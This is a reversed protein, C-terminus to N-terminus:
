LRLAKLKYVYALVEAVAKYLSGPILEGIEVTKFLTQALPKNEVLPVKHEEAVARIRLAIYDQGKAVVKPATMSDKKYSLAVAFHTPNTIVVDAKPVVAMILKMAIERQKRKIRGKIEPSGEANKMEDKVEERTMRLNQEFQRRNWFYDALAVILLYTASKLSLQFILHGMNQAIQVPTKLMLRPLESKIGEYISYTLFTVIGVSFVSKLFEIGSTKPLLRQIGSLPNLNEFHFKMKYGSLVLGGQAANTAVSLALGTAMFILVIRGFRFGTQLFWYHVGEVTYDQREAHSLLYQMFGSLESLMAPGFMGLLIVIALFTTTFPLNQSRAIQGKEKAENRRKPTAKETRGDNGGFIGM